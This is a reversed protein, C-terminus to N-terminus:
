DGGCGDPGDADKSGGGGYSGYPASDSGSGERRKRANADMVVGFALGMGVGVGIGVALNDMAIGIAAGVAVGLAVGIGIFSRGEM